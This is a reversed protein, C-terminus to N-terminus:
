PRKDPTIKASRCAIRPSSWLAQLPFEAVEIWPVGVQGGSALDLLRLFVNLFWNWPDVWSADAFPIVSM